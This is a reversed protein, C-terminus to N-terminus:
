RSDAGAKAAEAGDTPTAAEAVKTGFVWVRKLEPLTKLATVGSEDV